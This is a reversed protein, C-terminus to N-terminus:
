RDLKAVMFNILVYKTEGILKSVIAMPINTVGFPDILSFLPTEPQLADLFPMMMKFEYNTFYVRISQKISLFNGTYEVAKYCEPFSRFDLATETWNLSIFYDQIRTCLEKLYDLNVDNFIFEITNLCKLKISPFVDKTTQRGELTTMHNVVAM